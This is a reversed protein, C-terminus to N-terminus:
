AIAQDVGWCPGMCRALPRLHTPLGGRTRFNSQCLFLATFFKESVAVVKTWDRLSRAPPHTPPYPPDLAGGAPASNCSKRQCEAARPPLDGRASSATGMCLTSIHRRRQSTQDPTRGEFWRGRALGASMVASMDSGLLLMRWVKPVVKAYFVCTLLQHCAMHYARHWWPLRPDPQWQTDILPHNSFRRGCVGRM